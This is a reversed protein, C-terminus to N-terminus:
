PIAGGAPNKKDAVRRKGGASNKRNEAGAARKKDRGRAQTRGANRGARGTDARRKEGRAQTRGANRGARRHGGPPIKKDGGWFFAQMKYIFSIFLM